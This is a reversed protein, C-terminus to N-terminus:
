FKTPKESCIFKIIHIFNFHEGEPPSSGGDKRNVTSRALWNRWLPDTLFAHKQYFEIGAFTYNFFLGSNQDCIWTQLQAKLPTINLIWGKLFGDIKLLVMQTSIEFTSRMSM